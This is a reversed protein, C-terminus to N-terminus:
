SKLFDGLQDSLAPGLTRAFQASLHNMELYVAIHGIVVHCTGDPCIWPTFDVLKMRDGNAAVPNEAALAGAVPFVCTM